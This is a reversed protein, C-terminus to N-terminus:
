FSKRMLGIGKKGKLGSRGKQAVIGGHM